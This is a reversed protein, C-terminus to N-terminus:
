IKILIFEYVFIPPHNILYRSSRDTSKSNPDGLNFLATKAEFSFITIDRFHNKSQSLFNLIQIIRM